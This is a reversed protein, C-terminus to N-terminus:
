GQMSSLQVASVAELRSPLVHRLVFCVSDGQQKAHGQMDRHKGSALNMWRRDLRHLGRAHGADVPARYISACDTGRFVGERVQTGALKLQLKRM